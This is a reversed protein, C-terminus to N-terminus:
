RPFPGSIVKTRWMNKPQMLLIQATKDTMRNTGDDTIMTANPMGAQSRCRDSPPAGGGSGRRSGGGDAGHQELREVQGTRPVLHLSFGPTPIPGAPLSNDDRM